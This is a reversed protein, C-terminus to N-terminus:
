IPHGPDRPKTYIKQLGEGQRVANWVRVYASFEACRAEDLSKSLRPGKNQLYRVMSLIPSGEELAVQTHLREFFDDAAVRDIRSFIVHAATATSPTPASSKGRWAVIKEASSFVDPSWAEIAEFVAAHSQFGSMTALSFADGQRYRDYMALYRGAASVVKSVTQSTGNARAVEDAVSRVKSHDTKGYVNAKWWGSVQVRHTTGSLAIAMLRHQGDLLKGAEDFAIGQHTETWRSERMESVLYKVHTGAVPRNNTNAELLRSAKCPDIRAWVPLRDRPLKVGLIEEVDGMSMHSM